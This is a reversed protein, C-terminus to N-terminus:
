LMGLFAEKKLKQQEGYEHRGTINRRVLLKNEATINVTEM